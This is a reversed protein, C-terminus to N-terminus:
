FSVDSKQFDYKRDIRRVNRVSYARRKGVSKAASLVQIPTTYLRQSDRLEDGHKSKIPSDNWNANVTLIDIGPIDFYKYFPMVASSHRIQNKLCDEGLLHGSFKLNKTKCWAKLRKFYNNEMLKQILTWYHYRVTKYDDEAFWFSLFTLRM